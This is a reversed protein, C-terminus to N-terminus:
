QGLTRKRHNTFKRRLVLFVIVWFLLDVLDLSAAVSQAPSRCAEQDSPRTEPMKLILGHLTEM